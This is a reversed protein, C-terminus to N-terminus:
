QEIRKRETSYLDLFIALGLEYNDDGLSISFLEGCPSNKESLTFIMVFFINSISLNWPMEELKKFERADNTSVASM